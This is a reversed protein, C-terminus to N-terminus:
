GRERAESTMGRWRAACQKMGQGEKMCVGVFKNYQSPSRARKTKDTQEMELQFLGGNDCDPLAKLIDRFASQEKPDQIHKAETALIDKLGSALCVLTAKPM